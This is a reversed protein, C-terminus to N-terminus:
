KADKERGCPDKSRLGIWRYHDNATLKCNTDQQCAEFSLIELCQRTTKDTDAAILLAIALGAIFLILVIATVISRMM